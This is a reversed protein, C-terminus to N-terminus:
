LLLIGALVAACVLDVVACFPPYWPVVQAGLHGGHHAWDWIGHLVYGLVLLAPAFLAGSIALGITVASIVMEQAIVARSSQGALLTGPYVAGIAALALAFGWVGSAILSHVGFALALGCGLGILAARNLFFTM